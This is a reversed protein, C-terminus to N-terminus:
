PYQPKLKTLMEYKITKHVIFIETKIGDYISQNAARSLKLTINREFSKDPHHYALRDPMNESLCKKLIRAFLNTAECFFDKFAMIDQLDYKLSNLCSFTKLFLMSFKYYKVRVYTRCQKAKRALEM